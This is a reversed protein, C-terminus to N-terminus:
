PSAPRSFRGSATLSLIGSFSDAVARVVCHQDPGFAAVEDFLTTVQSEPLM